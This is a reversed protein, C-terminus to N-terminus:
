LECRWASKGRKRWLESTFGARQKEQDKGVKGARRQLVWVDKETHSDPYPFLGGPHSIDKDIGWDHLWDDLNHGSPETLMTAVDVGIGGAGM